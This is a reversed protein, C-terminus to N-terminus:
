DSSLDSRSKASHVIVTEKGKINQLIKKALYQVFEMYPFLLFQYFVSISHLVYIFYNFMKSTNRACIFMKLLKISTM